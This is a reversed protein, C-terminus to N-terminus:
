HRLAGKSVHMQHRAQDELGEGMVEMTAHLLSIEDHLGAKEYLEVAFDMLSINALHAIRAISVSVIAIRIQQWSLDPPEDVSGVVFQLSWDVLEEMPLASILALFQEETFARQLFRITPDLAWAERASEESSNVTGNTKWWLAAAEKWAGELDKTVEHYMVKGVPIFDIRPSLLDELEKRASLGKSGDLHDVYDDMRDSPDILAEEDVLPSQTAKLSVTPVDVDDLNPREMVPENPMVLAMHHTQEEGHEAIVMALGQAPLTQKSLAYQLLKHYNRLVAPTIKDKSHNLMAFPEYLLEAMNKMDPVNAVGMRYHDYAEWAVQISLPDQFSIASQFLKIPFVSPLPILHRSSIRDPHKIEEIDRMMMGHVKFLTHSFLDEGVHKRWHDIFQQGYRNIYYVAVTSLTLPVFQQKIAYERAQNYMGPLTYHNLVIPERPRHPDIAAVTQLPQNM